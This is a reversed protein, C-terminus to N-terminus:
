AHFKEFESKPLGKNWDLHCRWLMAFWGRSTGPGPSRAQNGQTQSCFKGPPNAWTQKSYTFSAWNCQRPYFVVWWQRLLATVCYIKSWSARVTASSLPRPTRCRPVTHIYTHTHSSMPIIYLTHVHAHMYTHIYVHTHTYTHTYALENTHYVTRAHTHTPKSRTSHFSATRPHAEMTQPLGCPQESANRVVSRAHSQAIIGICVCSLVMTNDHM